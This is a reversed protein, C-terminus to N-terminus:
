VAKIISNQVIPVKADRIDQKLLYADVMGHAFNNYLIQTAEESFDSRRYFKEKQSGKLPVVPQLKDFNQIIRAYVFPIDRIIRNGIQHPGDGKYIRARTQHIISGTDVGIDMYMFTAGAYEPENNVLPWFNTGTGRYYPSLGLHVNLLRNRFHDLLSGKIISCGYAVILDPALAIIDEVYQPQNIDGFDIFVPNSQDSSFRVAGDFFDKECNDRASLHEDQQVSDIPPLPKTECFSKLVDIGDSLALIKRVYTHRLQDGTLIVIKKM